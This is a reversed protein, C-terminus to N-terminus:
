LFIYMTCQVQQVVPYVMLMGVKGLDLMQGGKTPWASRERTGLPNTLQVRHGNSGQQMSDSAKYCLKIPTHRLQIGSMSQSTAWISAPRQRLDLLSCSDLVVTHGSQFTQTSM